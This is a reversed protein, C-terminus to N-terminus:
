KKLKPSIIEERYLVFGNLLYPSHRKGMFYLFELHTFSFKEKKLPLLLFTEMIEIKSHSDLLTRPVILWFIRRYNESLKETYFFFVLWVM